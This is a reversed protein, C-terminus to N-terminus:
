FDLALAAVKERAARMSAEAKDGWTNEAALARVEQVGIFSLWFEVYGSQHDFRSPPTPLDEKYEQGRTYIVMARPTQLLPGFREGDYTFLMNRQSVLDILQKLKYPYAFNWMPVGLVIRDARKFRAVLTQIRNWVATEAENMASGAVGKYKADIAANDFEPLKEDWVNMVDVTVSPLADTYATVFDDTLAISNSKSARPSADIRLLHIPRSATELSADDNLFGRRRPHRPLQTVPNMPRERRYAFDVQTNM